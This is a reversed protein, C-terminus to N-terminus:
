GRVAAALERALTGRRAVTVDDLGLWSAMTRLERALPGAIAGPKAHSEVYAGLVRLVGAVRDSKLDVRGVLRDGLLFPLVYYGYKRKPRPVYIEIRYDFDFL